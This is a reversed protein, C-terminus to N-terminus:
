RKGGEIKGGQGKEVPGYDGETSFIMGLESSAGGNSTGKFGSKDRRKFLSVKRDAL